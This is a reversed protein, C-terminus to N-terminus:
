IERLKKLELHLREESKGKFRKWEYPINKRIEALYEERIIKKREADYGRIEDLEKAHLIWKKFADKIDLKKGIIAKILKILYLLHLSDNIWQSTNKRAKSNVYAAQFNNVHDKFMCNDTDLRSFEDLVEFIHSIVDVVTYKLERARIETKMIKQFSFLMDEFDQDTLKHALRSLDYLQKPYESIKETPLGVSKQALTLFKDGILSGLSITPLEVETNLAFIESPPAYSIRYNNIDEFMVDVKIDINGDDSIVSDASVIYTILPINKTKQCSYAKQM